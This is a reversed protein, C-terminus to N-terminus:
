EESSKTHLFNSYAKLMGTPMSFPEKSLNGSPRFHSQSKKRLPEGQLFVEAKESRISRSNDKNPSCLTGKDPKPGGTGGRSVCTVGPLLLCTRHQALVFQKNM